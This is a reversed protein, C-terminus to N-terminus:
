YGSFRRSPTSDQIWIRGVALFGLIFATYTLTKRWQYLVKTDEVRRYVIRLTIARLLFFLVVVAVTALARPELDNSSQM